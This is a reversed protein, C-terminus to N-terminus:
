VVALQEGKEVLSERDRRVPATSTQTAIQPTGFQITSLTRNGNVRETDNLRANGLFCNDEGKKSPYIAEEQSM